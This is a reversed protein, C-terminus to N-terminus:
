AEMLRAIEAGDLSLQEKLADAIRLIAARHIRVLDVTEAYTQLLLDHFNGGVHHICAVADAIDCICEGIRVEGAIEEEAAMGALSIRAEAILDTVPDPAFDCFGTWGTLGGDPPPEIGVRATCVGHLIGIWVHGAEHIATNDRTSGGFADSGHKEYIEDRIKRYQAREERTLSELASNHAREKAAADAFYPLFGSLFDDLAEIGEQGYIELGDIIPGDDAFVGIRYWGHLLREIKASIGDIEATEIVDQGSNRLLANRLCYLQAACALAQRREVLFNFTGGSEGEFRCAADLFTVSFLVDDFFHQGHHIRCVAAGNKSPGCPGFITTMGGPIAIQHELM